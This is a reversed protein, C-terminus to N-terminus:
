KPHKRKNAFFQFIKFNFNLFFAAGFKFKVGFYFNTLEALVYKLLENFLIYFFPKRPFFEEIM